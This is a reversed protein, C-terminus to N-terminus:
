REARRFVVEALPMPKAPPPVVVYEDQVDHVDPYDAVIETCAVSLLEREDDSPEQEFVARFRLVSGQLEVSVERLTKPVAGLLARQASLRLRVDPKPPIMHDLRQGALQM